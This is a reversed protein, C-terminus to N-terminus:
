RAHSCSRAARAVRPGVPQEHCWPAQIVHSTVPPAPYMPDCTTRAKLWTPSPTTTNTCSSPCKRAALAASMLGVGLYDPTAADVDPESESTPSTDTPATDTPESAQATEDVAPAGALSRETAGAATAASVAPSVPRPGLNVLAALSPDPDDRPAVRRVLAALEPDGAPAEGDPTSTNAAGDASSNPLDTM